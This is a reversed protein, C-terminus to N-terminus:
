LTRVSCYKGEKEQISNFWAEAEACHSCGEGRFFYVKVKANSLTETTEEARVKNLGFGLVLSIILLPLVLLKLKGKM